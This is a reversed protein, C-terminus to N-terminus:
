YGSECSLFIDVQRGDWRALRGFVYMSKSELFFQSVGIDERGNRRFASSHCSEEGGSDYWIM